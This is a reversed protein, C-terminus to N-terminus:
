QKIIKKTIVCDRSRVTIFYVGKQFSSLDIQHTPGEVKDIYILKGNLSTIEIFHQGHQNTEITLLGNAPNPYIYFEDKICDVMGTAACDIFLVDPSGATDVYVSAPPFPTEWVYVTDLSPMGGIGIEWLSNNACLNLGTLQNNSCDLHYLATCGSVDLSTLQNDSCDLGTLATNNLFM